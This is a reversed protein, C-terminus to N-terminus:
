PMQILPTPDLIWDKSQALCLFTPILIIKKRQDIENLRRKSLTAKNSFPKQNQMVISHANAPRGFM